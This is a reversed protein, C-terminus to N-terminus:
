YTSWTNRMYNQNVIKLESLLERRGSGSGEEEVLWLDVGELTSFLNKRLSTMSSFCRFTVVRLHSLLSVSGISM